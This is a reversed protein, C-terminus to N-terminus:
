LPVLYFFHCFCEFKMLKKVASCLSLTMHENGTKKNFFIKKVYVFHSAGFSKRSKLIVIEMLRM